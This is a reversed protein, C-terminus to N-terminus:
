ALERGSRAVLAILGVVVGIGGVVIAVIALTSTGGGGASSVVDVTPAPDEASQSGTWAVISGDSYTQQVAFTYTGTHSPEALFQFLSDEGTPTHGGSWTVQQVVAEEGSGTQQVTRKWGPAPVFSDIAFGAPLTLVIKTTTLGEKETPVVLSYLQLKHAITVQPGMTAHAFAAGPLALAVVAAAVLAKKL